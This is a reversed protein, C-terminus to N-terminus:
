PVCDFVTVGLRKKAKELAKRINEEAHLDAPALQGSAAESYCYGSEATPSSVYVLPTVVQFSGVNSKVRIGEVLDQIGDGNIEMYHLDSVARCDDANAQAPLPVLVIEKVGESATALRCYSNIIGSYRISVPLLLRASSAQSSWILKKELRVIVPADEVLDAQASLMAPLRLNVQRIEELTPVSSMRGAAASCPDSMAVTMAAVVALPMSLKNGIARLISM